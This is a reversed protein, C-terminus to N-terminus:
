AYATGFGTLLTGGARFYSAKRAAKGRQRSIKGQLRDLEAQTEARGAGVEGGFGILLNELELEAAQEAALDAAVPSGLGGAAGLAATLTSKVRAARKAQRKQEFGAKQRLAEAEREQVLANYNAINQASKAQAEAVRGAQIAGAAAIGTGAVTAVTGVNAALWFAAQVQSMGGVASVIPIALPAM